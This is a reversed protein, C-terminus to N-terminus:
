CSYDAGAPTAKITSWRWDGSPAVTGRQTSDLNVCGNTGEVVKSLTAFTTCTFKRSSDAFCSTKLSHVTYGARVEARRLDRKISGTVRALLDEDFASYVRPKTAAVAHKAAAPSRTPTTTTASGCGAVAVTAAVAALTTRTM